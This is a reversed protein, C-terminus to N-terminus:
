QKDDGSETSENATGQYYQAYYYKENRYYYSSELRFDNYVFGLIRVKTMKLQNITNIIYKKRTSEHKTVAVMADVYKAVILPDAVALVPPLDLIIYDYNKSEAELWEKMKHSALLDSPNPPRVGSLVVFLNDNLETKVIVSEAKGVLLDSLGPQKAIGLAKGIAPRRMDCEVLLIKNGETAMAYALQTATFTKGESPSASTVGIIQGGSEKKTLSYSVNTRLRNYAETAAYDIGRIVNGDKKESPSAAETGTKKGYRRYARGVSQYANPVVALVSYEGGFTESLWEENQLKDNVIVDFVVLCCAALIFGIAAALLGARMDNCSSTSYRHVGEVKSATAGNIVNEIREILSIQIADAILCADKAAVPETGASLSKDSKQGGCTVRIYFIETENLPACDIAALFADYSYNRSLTEGSAEIVEMTKEYTEYTTLIERYTYVLSQAAEIDGSSISVKTPGIMMSDNNVYMKIATSYSPTYRINEVVFGGFAFLVTTLLIIWWRRLLCKFIDALSISKELNEDM